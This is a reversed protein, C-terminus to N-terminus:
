LAYYSRSHETAAFYADDYYSRYTLKEAPSICRGTARLHPDAAAAYVGGHICPHMRNACVSPFTFSQAFVVSAGPTAAICRHPPLKVSLALSLSPSLSLFKPVNHVRTCIYNVCLYNNRKRTQAYSAM